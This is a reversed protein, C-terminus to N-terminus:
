KKLLKELYDVKDKEAQVLREYLKKNEEYADVLKDLPNFTCTNNHGFNSSSVAENFTNFYNIVGEDSYNKIADSSVGLVEAIAKLKEEEVTESGEINSVSQQSVGIAIALAEQKMGRLERIRSINRGIHKPKTATNM